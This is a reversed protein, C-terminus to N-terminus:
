YDGDDGLFLFWWGGISGRMSGRLSHKCGPTKGDRRGIMCFPRLATRNPFPHHFFSSPIFKTPACKKFNPCISQGLSRPDEWHNRTLRFWGIIRLPTTPLTRWFIILWHSSSVWHDSEPPLYVRWPVLMDGFFPMKFIIKRKGLHSINIGQLYLQFKQKGAKKASGFFVIFNILDVSCLVGM